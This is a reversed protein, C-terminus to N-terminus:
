AEREADVAPDLPERVLHARQHRRVVDIHVARDDARDDADLREAALPQRAGTGLRAAGVRQQAIRYFACDRDIDGSM